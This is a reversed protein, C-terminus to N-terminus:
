HKVEIGISTPTQSVIKIETIRPETINGEGVYEITLNGDELIIEYIKNNLSAYHKDDEDKTAIGKEEIFSLYEEAEIVGTKHEEAVNKLYLDAYHLQLQEKDSAIETELKAKEAFPVVGNDDFVTRITITALIIIIVITIVLALLTIGKTSRLRKEM